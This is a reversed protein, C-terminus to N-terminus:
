AADLFTIGQELSIRVPRVTYEIHKYIVEDPDGGYRIARKKNEAKRQRASSREDKEKDNFLKRIEEAREPTRYVALGRYAQLVEDGECVAFGDVPEVGLETLHKHITKIAPLLRIFATSNSVKREFEEDEDKGPFNWAIVSSSHYLIGFATLFDSPDIKYGSVRLKAQDKIADWTQQLRVLPDSDNDGCDHHDKLLQVIESLDSATIMGGDRLCGILVDRIHSITGCCMPLFEGETDMLDVWEEATFNLKVKYIQPDDGPRGMCTIQYGKEAFETELAAEAAYHERLTAQWVPGATHKREDCKDLIELARDVQPHDPNYKRLNKLLWRINRDKRLDNRETPFEMSQLILVLEDFEAAEPHSYSM